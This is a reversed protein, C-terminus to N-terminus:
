PSLTGLGLEGAAENRPPLEQAPTLCLADFGRLVEVPMVQAAHLDKATEHVAVMIKSRYQRKTQESDM